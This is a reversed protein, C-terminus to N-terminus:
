INELPENDILFDDHSATSVLRKTVVVHKTEIVNLKLKYFNLWKTLSTLDETMKELCDPLNENAISFLTGDAFLNVESYKIPCIIENIHLVFLLPRLVSGQSVGLKV